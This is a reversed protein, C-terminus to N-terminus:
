GLPRRAVMANITCVGYTTPSSIACNEMRMEGKERM